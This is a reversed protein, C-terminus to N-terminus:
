RGGHMFTRTIYVLLGQQNFFFVLVIVVLAALMLFTMPKM